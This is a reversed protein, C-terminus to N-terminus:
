NIQKIALNNFKLFILPGIILLTMISWFIISETWFQLINFNIWIGSNSYNNPESLPIYL